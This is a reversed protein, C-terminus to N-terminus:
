RAQSYGPESPVFLHRDRGLMVRVPLGKADFLYKKVLIPGLMGIYAGAIVDSIWHAGQLVRLVGVTAAFFFYFADYRPYVLTLSMALTFMFQTHGSPLANMSFDSVNFPSFGYLGQELFARPRMRGLATKLAIGALGTAIVSAIVFLCANRAAEAVDRNRKMILRRHAYRFALFLMVSLLLYVEVAAIETLDAMVRKQFDSMHSATWRAVPRDILSFSVATALLASVFAASYPRQAATDLIWDSLDRCLAGPRHLAM